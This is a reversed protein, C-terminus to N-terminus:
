LHVGTMLKTIPFVLKSSWSPLINDGGRFFDKENTANYKIIIIVNQIKDILFNTSIQEIIIYSGANYGLNPKM